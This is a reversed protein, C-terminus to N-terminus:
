ESSQFITLDRQSLIQGLVSETLLTGILVPPFGEGAAEAVHGAVEGMPRAPWPIRAEGKAPSIGPGGKVPSVGSGWRWM